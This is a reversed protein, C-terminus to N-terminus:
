GFLSIMGLPVYGAAFMGAAASLFGGVGYVSGPNRMLNRYTRTTGETDEIGVKKKFITYLRDFM